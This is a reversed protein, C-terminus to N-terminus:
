NVASKLMPQILNKLNQGRCQKTGEDTRDRRKAFMMTCPHKGSVVQHDNISEELSCTSHIRSSTHLKSVLLFPLALCDMKVPHQLSLPAQKQEINPIPLRRYKFLHSSPPITFGIVRFLLLLKHGNRVRLVCAESEFRTM